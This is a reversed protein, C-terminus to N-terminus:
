EATDPHHTTTAMGVRVRVAPGYYWIYSSWYSVISDYLCVCVCLRQLQLIYQTKIVITRHIEVILAFFQLKPTALIWSSM